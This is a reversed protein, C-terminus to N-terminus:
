KKKFVNGTNKYGFLTKGQADFFEHYQVFQSRGFITHLWYSTYLFEREAECTDVSVCHLEPQNQANTTWFFQQDCNWELESLNIGDYAHPNQWIRANRFTEPVLYFAAMCTDAQCPAIRVFRETLLEGDLSKAFWGFYLWTDSLKNKKFVRLVVSEQHRLHRLTTTDAQAQNSFRGEIFKVIANVQKSKQALLVNSGHWCLLICLM